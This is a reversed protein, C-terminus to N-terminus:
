ILFSQNHIKPNIKNLKCTKYLFKRKVKNKLKIINQKFICLLMVVFM